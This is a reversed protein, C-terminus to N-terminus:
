SGSPIPQILECCLADVIRSHDRDHSALPLGRSSAIAAIWLDNHPLGDHGASRAAARLRAWEEVAGLDLPILLCGELHRESEDRRREGWGAILWGARLEALTFPTIAQISNEVRELGRAAGPGPDAGGRRLRERWSIFSTDLM